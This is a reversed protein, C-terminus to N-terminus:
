KVRTIVIHASVASVGGANVTIPLAAANGAPNRITIVSNVLTTQVLLSGTIPSTIAARGFVGYALEVNNLTVVLQGAISVPVSFSVQYTGIPGLTFSSTSLAVRTIDSLSSPGNNPFAVDAGLAIPVANDGPMLAYFDAFSLPITIPALVTQDYLLKNVNEQFNLGIPEITVNYNPPIYSM